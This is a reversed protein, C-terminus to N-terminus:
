EGRRIYGMEVAYSYLRQQLRRRARFLRSKVTGVPIELLESIEQYGLGELDALVVPVRFDEPLEEIARIVEEDVIREFFRGEPDTGQLQPYIPREAVEDFEVPVPRKQTRRLDNIFTNRLITTLWARCNTGSQFNDWARYAKLMTDQVLDQAAADDGGTFRLALGYLGDLHILAEAEFGERKESM